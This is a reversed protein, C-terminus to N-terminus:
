LYTRRLAKTTVCLRTRHQSSVTRATRSYEERQHLIKGGSFFLLECYYYYYYYYQQLLLIM